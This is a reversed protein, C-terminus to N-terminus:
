AHEEAERSIRNVQRTIQGKLQVLRGLEPDRNRPHNRRANEAMSICEVRDITIQELVNTFMGPKFIVIHKAPVPGNLESWVLEAVGRWRKSNSGSAESVKCQLHGEKNLRYSGIAHTNHPQQGKRFQTARCAEQIGVVGKLGKNWTAHGKAFQNRVAGPAFGRDIRASRESANFEESKSLGLEFAKNYVSCTPRNLALGVAKATNDPYLRRLADVEEPTWFRRQM